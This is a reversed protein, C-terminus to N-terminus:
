REYQHKREGESVQVKGKDLIIECVEHIDTTGFAQQLEESSAVDGKRFLSELRAYSALIFRLQTATCQM